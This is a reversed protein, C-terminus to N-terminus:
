GLLGMWSRMCVYANMHLVLRVVAQGREVHCRAHAVGRHHLRPSATQNRNQLEQTSSKCFARLQPASNPLELSTAETRQM